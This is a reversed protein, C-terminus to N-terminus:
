LSLHKQFPHPFFTLFLLIEGGGDYCYEEFGCNTQISKVLVPCKRGQNNIRTSKLQRQHIKFFFFSASVPKKKKKKFCFAGHSCILRTKLLYPKAWPSPMREAATGPNLSQPRKVAYLSLLVRPLTCYCTAPTTNASIVTPTHCNYSQLAAVPKQLPSLRDGLLKLASQVATQAVHHVPRRRPWLLHSLQKVWGMNLPLHTMRMKIKNRFAARFEVASNIHFVNM